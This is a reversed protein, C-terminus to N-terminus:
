VALITAPFDRAARFPWMDEEIRVTLADIIRSQADIQSLCLQTMFAHHEKFGGSGARGSRPCRANGPLFGM